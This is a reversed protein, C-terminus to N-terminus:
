MMGKSSPPPAQPLRDVPPPAPEPPPAAEAPPAEPYGEEPSPAGIFEFEKVKDIDVIKGDPTVTFSFATIQKKVETMTLTVKAEEKVNPNLSTLTVTVPYPLRKEATLENVANTEKYVRVNVVYRGPVIARISIIEHNAAIVKTNGNVDQITDNTAGLDDHDLIAYRKDQGSYSVQKGDPLLMHLDVDDFIKEDWKLEVLFEASLKVGENIPKVVPKTVNDIFLFIFTVLLVGLLDVLGLYVKGPDEDPVM